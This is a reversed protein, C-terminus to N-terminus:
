NDGDGHGGADTHLTDGKVRETTTATRGSSCVRGACPVPPTGAYLLPRSLPHLSAPELDLRAKLEDTRNEKSPSLTYVSCGDSFDPFLLDSEQKGEQGLAFANRGDM